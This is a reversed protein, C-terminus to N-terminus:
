NGNTALWWRGRSHGYYNVVMSRRQSDSWGENDGCGDSHSNNVVVKIM